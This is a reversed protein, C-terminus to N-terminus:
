RLQIMFKRLSLRIKTLINKKAVVAAHGGPDRVSSLWSKQARLNSFGRLHSMKKYYKAVFFIYVLM